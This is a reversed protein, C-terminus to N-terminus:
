RTQLPAPLECPAHNARAFVPTPARRELTFFSCPYANKEDTDHHEVHCIEWQALDFTPFFTDGGGFRHHIVTLYLRDARPLLAQYITAGGLIMVEKDPEADRALALAEDVSHAVVVGPAEYGLDRTLVINLRGKLPAPLSEFTRRGMILPKGMTTRVFFKLDRPLHWPMGGDKGITMQLDCAVIPAITM